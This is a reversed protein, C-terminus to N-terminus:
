QKAEVMNIIKQPTNFEEREIESPSIIVEFNDEIAVLLEAFALSDLLGEEILDIQMDDKVVDDECIEALVDLIKERM